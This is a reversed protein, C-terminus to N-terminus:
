SNAGLALKTLFQRMDEVANSNVLYSTGYARACESYARWTEADANVMQQIVARFRAPDELPLAWGAGQENVDNWPTRDSILVPCGACLAELIAHGFNESLSPMFFLDYQSLVETVREPTVSGRHHIRVNAPLKRFKLICNEWYADDEIPGWFDLNIDGEVGRLVEAMFELNKMRSIRSLMVIRVGGIRKARTNNVSTSMPIPLNPIQTLSPQRQSGFVTRIDRTEENSTSHWYVRDYLGFVRALLLYVRKKTPKLGLAEKSLSGRPAVIIPSRVLGLYAFLLVDVTRTSFTSNTYILDHPTHRLIRLLSFPSLEQPALYRVQAKGVQYWTGTQIDPYPVPDRYDRDKTLIRFCIDDGLWEVLNAITRTPGGSRYGPLYYDILILVNPQIATSM